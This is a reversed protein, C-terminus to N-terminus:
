ANLVGAEELETWSLATKSGGGDGWNLAAVAVASVELSAGPKIAAAAWTATRVHVLMTRMTESMKPPQQALTLSQSSSDNSSYASAKSQLYESQLCNDLSYVDHVMFSQQMSM